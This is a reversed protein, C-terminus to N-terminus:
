ARDSDANNVRAHNTSVEPPRETYTKHVSAEKEDLYKSLEKAADSMLEHLSASFDVGLQDARTRLAKLEAILSVALRLTYTDTKEAKAKINLKM